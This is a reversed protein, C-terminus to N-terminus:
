IIFSFRHFPPKFKTHIFSNLAIATLPYIFLFDACPLCAPHRSETGRTELAAVGNNRAIGHEKNSLPKSDAEISENGGVRMDGIRGQNEGTIDEANGTHTHRWAAPNGGATRWAELASIGNNGAIGHEKNGLPKSHAEIGQNGGIGVNGIRVQDEGTIDETNGASRWRRGRTTDWSRARWTELAPVGNLWPVGHEKNGLPKSHAEIGQNGGVGMDGIGILNEGTIDKTNGASRGATDWSRARWAEL